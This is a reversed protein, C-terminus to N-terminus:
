ASSIERVVREDKDLAVWATQAAFARGGARMFTGGERQAFVHRRGDRFRLEAAVAWPADSEVSLRTLSEVPCSEGVALPYLLYAFEVVGKATRTFDAVPIPRVTADKGTIHQIWGRLPDRQGALIRGESLPAEGGLHFIALNPQDPNQTLIMQGQAQAAPTDLHLISEYRHVLEDTPSLQDTVIWYDPKVFLIRRVHRVVKYCKDGYGDEFYGEAYDYDPQVLWRQAVPQSANHLDRQARRNQGLGDVIVTNHSYSSLIHRRWESSDYNYTGTDIIHAKGDAHCVISLKDEHQHAQGFPGVDFLLYKDRVGWGSRMVLYGAWPFAYSTQAPPEGEQGQTAAWLYDRRQPFLAFGERLIPAAAIVGADQLPPLNGDPSMMYLVFDYMKELKAQYDVPFIIDNRRALQLPWVFNKLSVLHYSTSLEIQAGDAYVQADLAASLREIATKLWDAAERFEPFLAAIHFLGCTEMAGWNSQVRFHKPMMLYRAHHYFSKLMAIQADVTFSPSARFYHYAAPWTQGMRIGADLSLSLLGERDDLGEYYREGLRVPMAAIWGLLQAVFERAYKEDGTHAYARGLTVWQFHRNLAIPWQDYGVPDEDWVIVQGIQAPPYGVFTFTHQLVREAEALTEAMTKVREFTEEETELNRPQPRLRARLHAVLADKAAAWDGASAAREVGGLGPYDLNLAAFLEADTM